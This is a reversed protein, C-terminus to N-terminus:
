HELERLADFFNAWDPVGLGTAQDYGRRGFWFWNDGRTIDRFAANRGQRSGPFSSILYMPPNFLGIRHRLAQVFLNTVGNLEPAVFSTGGAQFFGPPGNSPDSPSYYYIYGTQPDANTSIDPVNRGPFRAPLKYLKQAPAPTLQSLVQGPVTDVMGPTFWQYFPRKFYISVGGGTGVPYTGCDIANLGLADCLPQLYDWGWAQEQKITISVTEGSPVLYNQTGAVTTGGGATIYRQMAPDDVSLVPNFSDPQGPSPEIPLAGATDYGGSDGSAAFWTQGQSAAQALLDDTAQLIDTPQGTVPDTINGNGVVPNSGDFGEWEGWSTSVTDARNADIAAAFADAFGQNTNPAIYVIIKAGPALGGSQEVDLTTEDSGAADSPPGAGGDVQVESIRNPLVNVGVASWYNYADSQTFSALTVIGITRGKGTLGQRYLPNLDYYQAYDLVTWSGPPDATGAGNSNSPSHLPVRLPNRLRPTLRPRTDLGLVARVSDAIAAPAHPAGLPARFRYEANKATAAVEYSHLEIAFAKEIQAATGSVQLHATSSQTVTLGAAEFQKTAAAITAASPGFESRFQEPTMFQRYQPSGRTYIEQIRQELQETNRLKLAVTVTVKASDAYSSAPGLDVAAVPGHPYPAAAAAGFLALGVAAALWSKSTNM